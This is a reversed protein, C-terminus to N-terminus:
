EQKVLQYKGWEGPALTIGIAMFDTARAYWLPSNHKSMFDGRYNKRPHACYAWVYIKGEWQGGLEDQTLWFTKSKAM